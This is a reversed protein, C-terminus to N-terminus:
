SALGQRINKGKLWLNSQKNTKTQKKNENKKIQTKM